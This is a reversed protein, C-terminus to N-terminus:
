EITSGCLELKLNIVVFKKPTRIILFIVTSKKTHQSNEHGLLLSGLTCLDLESIHINTCRLPERPRLFHPMQLKATKM